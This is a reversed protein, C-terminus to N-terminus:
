RWDAEAAGAMAKIENPIGVGIAAAASAVASSKIFNRRNFKM